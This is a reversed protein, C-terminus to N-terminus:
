VHLVNHGSVALARARVECAYDFISVGFNADCTCPRQGLLDHM